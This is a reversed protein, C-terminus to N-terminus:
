LNLYNILAGTIILVRLYIKTKKSLHGLPQLCRNALGTFPNFQKWPEFGQREAM